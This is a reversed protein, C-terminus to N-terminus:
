SSMMETALENDETESDDLRISSSWASPASSGNSSTALPSDSVGITGVKASRSSGNSISSAQTKTIVPRVKGSISRTIDQILLITWMLNCIAVNFRTRM